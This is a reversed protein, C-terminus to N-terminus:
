RALASERNLANTATWRCLFGAVQTRYTRLQADGQTCIYSMRLTRDHEAYVGWFLTLKKQGTTTQTCRTRELAVVGTGEIRVRRVDSIGIVIENNAVPMHQTAQEFAASAFRGEPVAIATLLKATVSQSARPTGKNPRTLLHRRGVHVRDKGRVGTVWGVRADTPLHRQPRPVGKIPRAMLAHFIGFKDAKGTKNKYSLWWEAM